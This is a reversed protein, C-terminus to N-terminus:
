PRQLVQEGPDQLKIHILAM